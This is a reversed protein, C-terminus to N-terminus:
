SRSEVYPHVVHAVRCQVACRWLEDMTVWPAAWSERLAALAVDLGTKNRFKVCDAVARTVSTVRVAVGDIRRM